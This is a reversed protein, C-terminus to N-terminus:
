LSSHNKEKILAIAADLLEDKGQKIGEITPEVRVDPIIGIRQTEEGNPYYIGVGSFSTKLGGPLYFFTMDGDAGASNSGVLTTNVGKQLAMAIFEPQSQSQENILVVLPKQYLSNGPNVKLKDKTEIEGPNDLKAGTASVFEIPKNVFYKGLAHLTPEKPYQRLDIIIGNTDFLESMASDVDNIALQGISIYGVNGQLKSHSGAIKPVDVKNFDINKPPLNNLQFSLSNSKRIVTISTLKKSDVFLQYGLRLMKGKFNSAAILSTKQRIVENIPVGNFETIVDGVELQYHYNPKKLLPILSSVILQNEVWRAIYPAQYKNQSFIANKGWLVVHSDDAEELLKTVALEYALENEALIFNPLHKSLVEQWNTDTLYKYPFFYHVINWYRYLSLLRHGIDPYAMDKYAKENTFTPAPSNEYAVYHHKGQYRNKYIYELQQVLKKSKINNLWFHDPKLKSDSKTPQCSTCLDVKGLKTVWNSLVQEAQIQNSAKLYDPLVEFLQHDWNLEGSASKPHYYKLFGWVQGLLELKQHQLPSLQSIEVGSGNSYKSKPPTSKTTDAVVSLSILFLSILFYRM